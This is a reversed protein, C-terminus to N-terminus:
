KHDSPRGEGNVWWDIDSVKKLFENRERDSQSSLTRTVRKAVDGVPWRFQAGDSNAVKFIEAAVSEASLSGEGAGRGLWHDLPAYNEDTKKVSAAAKFLNTACGGPEVLATKIGFRAVENRLSETFGELAFKSAAYASDGALGALGSLSSIMIIYGDGKKRLAPLVARTMNVAGWFNVDMTERFTEEPMTEFAGVPLIGANNVLVDPGGSESELREALRLIESSSTVDLGCFEIQLAENKAAKKLEGGSAPDRLSAIVQDGNRAFTLATAAGIGSASGTILITRM